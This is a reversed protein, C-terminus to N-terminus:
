IHILSLDYPTWAFFDFRADAPMWYYTKGGANTWSDTVGSGNYRESHFYVNTEGRNTRLCSVGFGTITAADLQVGRTTLANLKGTPMATMDFWLSDATATTAVMRTTVSQPSRSMVEHRAEATYIGFSIAESGPVYEQLEDTCACLLM